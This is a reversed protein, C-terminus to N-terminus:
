KKLTVQVGFRSSSQQLVNVEVGMRLDLGSFRKILSVQGIGNDGVRANITHEDDLVVEAGFLATADADLEVGVVARKVAPSPLEAFLGVSPRMSPVAVIGGVHVNKLLPVAALGYSAGAYGTYGGSSNLCMDVGLSLGAANTSSFIEAIGDSFVKLRTTILAGAVDCVFMGGVSMKPTGKHGFSYTDTGFQVNSRADGQSKAGLKMKLNFLNSGSFSAKVRWASDKFELEQKNLDYFSKGVSIGLNKSSMGDLPHRDVFLKKRMGGYLLFLSSKNYGSDFTTHCKAAM